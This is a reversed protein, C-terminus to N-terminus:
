AAGNETEVVTLKGGRPPRYPEGSPLPMSIAIVPIDAKGCTGFRESFEPRSMKVLWPIKGPKIAGDAMPLFAFPAKPNRLDWIELLWVTDQDCCCVTRSLLGYEHEQPAILM